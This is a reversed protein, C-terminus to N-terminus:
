GISFTLDRAVAVNGNIAVTVLVDYTGGPIGYRYLFASSSPGFYLPQTTMNYLV